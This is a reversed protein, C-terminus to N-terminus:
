ARPIPSRFRARSQPSSPSSARCAACGDLHAQLAIAEAPDIRGLAAAALAGRWERCADATM